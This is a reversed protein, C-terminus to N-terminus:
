SRRFDMVHYLHGTKDVLASVAARPRKALLSSKELVVTVPAGELLAKMERAFRPVESWEVATLPASGALLRPLDALLAEFDPEDAALHVEIRRWPRRLEERVASELWVARIRPDGAAQAILREVADGYIDQHTRTKPQM